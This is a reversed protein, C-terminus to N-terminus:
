GRNVDFYSDNNLYGQPMKEPDEQIKNDLIRVRYGINRLVDDVFTGHLEPHMNKYMYAASQVAAPTLEGTNYQQLLKSQLQGALLLPWTTGFFPETYNSGSLANSQEKSRGVGYAPDVFQLRMGPNNTFYESLATLMPDAATIPTVQNKQVYDIISQIFSNYDQPMFITDICYFTFRAYGYAHTSDAFM